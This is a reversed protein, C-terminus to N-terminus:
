LEKFETLVGYIVWIAMARLYHSARFTGVATIAEPTRFQLGNEYIQNVVAETLRFAEEKMGMQLLFAALGFNIGTWVELPHTSEPNEPTGDPKLGNAAGYKGDFFKLFCADYVKKLASEACAFEVVDPLDLLRAYFQGCLQDSMVVDSGSESDLRYYEGNWLTQHYLSRSQQLWTQYTEINETISEPYDEIQLAPNMPPRLLLIRGIKIAAELAAIWLGGCYASIGKLQWDDFTQDPAGSNEPIGDNDLDFTKLYALTEVM